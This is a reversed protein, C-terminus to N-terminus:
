KGKNYNVINDLYGYDDPRIFMEFYGDRKWDTFYLWACKTTGCTYALSAITTNLYSSLSCDQYWGYGPHNNEGLNAGQRKIKKQVNNPAEIIVSYYTGGDRKLRVTVKPRKIGLILKAALEVRAKVDKQSAM